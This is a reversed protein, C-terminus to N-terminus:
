ARRAHYGFRAPIIMRKNLASVAGGATAGVTV